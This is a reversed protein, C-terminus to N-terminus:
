LVRSVFRVLPWTKRQRVTEWHLSLESAKNVREKKTFQRVKNPLFRFVLKAIFQLYKDLLFVGFEMELHIDTQTCVKGPYVNKVM